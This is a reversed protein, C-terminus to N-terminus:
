DALECTLYDTPISKVLGSVIIGASLDQIMIRFATCLNATLDPRSEFGGFRCNGCEFCYMRYWSM